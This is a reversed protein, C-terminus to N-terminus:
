MELEARVLTVGLTGKFPEWGRGERRTQTQVAASVRPWM